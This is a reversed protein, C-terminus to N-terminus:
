AFQGSTDMTRGARSLREQAWDECTRRLSMTVQAGKRYFLRSGLSRYCLDSFDPHIHYEPKRGTRGSAFEWISNSLLAQIVPSLRADMAQTSADSTLLAIGLDELARVILEGLTGCQVEAGDPRTVVVRVQPPQHFNALQERDLELALRGSIREAEWAEQMFVLQGMLFIWPRALAWTISAGYTEDGPALSGSLLATTEEMLEVGPPLLIRGRVWNNEPAEAHVDALPRLMTHPSDALVAGASSIARLLRPTSVAEQAPAGLVERELAAFPTEALSRENWSQVAKVASASLQEIAEVLARAHHQIGMEELRACVVRLWAAHVEPYLAFVGAEAEKPGLLRLIHVLRPAAVARLGDESPRVVGLRHLHEFGDLDSGAAEGFWLLQRIAALSLRNM